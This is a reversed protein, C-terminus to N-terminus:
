GEQELSRTAHIDKNRWFTFSCKTWGVVGNPTAYVFEWENDELIRIGEPFRMGKNELEVRYSM